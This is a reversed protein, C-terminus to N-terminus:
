KKAASQEVSIIRPGDPEDFVRVYRHKSTWVDVVNAPLRRLANVTLDLRFFGPLEMEYQRCGSETALRVMGMQTVARTHRQADTHRVDYWPLLM